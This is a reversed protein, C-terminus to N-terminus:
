LIIDAIDTDPIEITKGSPLTGKLVFSANRGRVVTNTVVQVLVNEYVVGNKLMVTVTGNYDLAQHAKQALETNM